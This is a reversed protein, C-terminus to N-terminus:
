RAPRRLICRVGRPGGTVAVRRALSNATSPVARAVLLMMTADCHAPGAARRADYRHVCSRFTSTPLRRIEFAYQGKGDSRARSASRADHASMISAHPLALPATMAPAAIVRLSVGAAGGIAHRGGHQFVTWSARCRDKRSPAVALAMIRAYWM